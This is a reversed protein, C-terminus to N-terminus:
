FELFRLDSEAAAYAARGDEFLSCVDQVIGRHQITGFLYGEEGMSKVVELYDMKSHIQRNNAMCWTHMLAGGTSQTVRIGKKKLMSHPTDKVNDKFQKDIWSQEWGKLLVLNGQEKLEKSAYILAGILHTATKVKITIMPIVEIGMKEYVRRIGKNVNSSQKTDFEAVGELHSNEKSEGQENVIYAHKCKKLYKVLTDVQDDNLGGSATLTIKYFM